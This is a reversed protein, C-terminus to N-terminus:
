CSGKVYQTIALKAPIKGRRFHSNLKNQMSALPLL